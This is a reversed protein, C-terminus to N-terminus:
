IDFDKFITDDQKEPYIEINFINDDGGSSPTDDSADSLKKYALYAILALILYSLVYLGAGVLELPSYLSIEAFSMIFNLVSVALYIGIYIRAMYLFSKKRLTFGVYNNCMYQMMFILVVGKLVPDIINGMVPIAAPAAFYILNILGLVINTFTFLFRVRFIFEKQVLTTYARRSFLMYGVWAFLEFVVLNIAAMIPYLLWLYRSANLNQAVGSEVLSAFQEELIKLSESGMEISVYLDAFISSVAFFLMWVPTPIKKLKSVFGDSLLKNFM